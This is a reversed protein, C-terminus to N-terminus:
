GVALQRAVMRRYHTVIDHHGERPQCEPQPNRQDWHTRVFRPRRGVRAGTGIALDGPPVSLWGDREIM